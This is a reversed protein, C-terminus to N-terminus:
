TVEHRADCKQTSCLLALWRLISHPPHTASLWVGLLYHQWVGCVLSSVFLFLKLVLLCAWVHWRWRGEAKGRDRRDHNRTHKRVTHHTQIYFHLVFQRSFLLTEFGHRCFHFRWCVSRYCLLEHSVCIHRDKFNRVSTGSHAPHCVSTHCHSPTASLLPISTSVVEPAFLLPVSCVSSRHDPIFVSTSLNWFLHPFFM